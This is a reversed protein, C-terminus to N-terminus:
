SQIINFSQLAPHSQLHFSTPNWHHFTSIMIFSQMVVYSQPLTGVKAHVSPPLIGIFHNELM